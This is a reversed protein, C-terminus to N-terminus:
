YANLLTGKLTFKHREDHGAQPAPEDKHDEEFSGFRSALHELVPAQNCQM